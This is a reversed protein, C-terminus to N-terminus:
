GVKCVKHLNMVVYRTIALNFFSSGSKGKKQQVSIIRDVSIFNNQHMLATKIVSKQQLNPWKLANVSKQRLSPLKAIVCKKRLMRAGLVATAYFNQCIDHRSVTFVRSLQSKKRFEIALKALM